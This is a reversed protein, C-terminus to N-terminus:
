IRIGVTSLCRVGNVAYTTCYQVLVQYQYPVGLGYYQSDGCVVAIFRNARLQEGAHARAYRRVNLALRGHCEM